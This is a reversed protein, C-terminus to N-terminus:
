GTAYPFGLQFRAKLVEFLETAADEDCMDMLDGKCLCGIDQHKAYIAMVRGLTVLADGASESLAPMSQNAVGLLDSFRYLFATGNQPMRIGDVACEDRFSIWKMGARTFDINHLGTMSPSPNKDRQLQYQYVGHFTAQRLSGEVSCDWFGSCGFDVAPALDFIFRCHEFIPNLFGTKSMKSLGFSCAQYM